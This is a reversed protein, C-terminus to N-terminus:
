RLRDVSKVLEEDKRIARNALFLLVISVIPVLLGIGKETGSPEGPLNLLRYLLLGLLILNILLLLRVSVFQNQRNKYLFITVIALVASLLAPIMFQMDDKYFLTQSEVTWLPLYNIALGTILAVLALYVTQIRQIM